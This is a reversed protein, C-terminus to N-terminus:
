DTHRVRQQRRRLDRQAHAARKAAIKDVKPKLQKMEAFVQESYDIANARGYDEYAEKVMGLRAHVSGRQRFARVSNPNVSLAQTCDFLAGRQCGHDSLFKARQLLMSSTAQFSLAKAFAALGAPLDTAAVAEDLCAQQADLEDDNLEKDDQFDKIELNYNRFDMSDVHTAGTDSDPETDSVNPSNDNADQSPAAQKADNQAASKAAPEAKKTTSAPKPPLKVNLEDRLFSALSDLKPHHINQPSAKLAEVKICCFYLNLISPIM